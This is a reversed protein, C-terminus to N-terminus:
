TAVFVSATANKGAARRFGADRIEGSNALQAVVDGPARVAGALGLEALRDGLQPATVGRAGRERFFALAAAVVEAPPASPVSPAPARPPSAPRAPSSSSTSRKVAPTARTARAARTARLPVASTALELLEEVPAATLADVIRAAFDAAIRSIKQELVMDDRSLARAPGVCADVRDNLADRLADAM